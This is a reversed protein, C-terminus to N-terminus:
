RYVSKLTGWSMERNVVPGRKFFTEVKTLPGMHDPPCIVGTQLKLWTVGSEEWTHWGWSDGFDTGLFEICCPGIFFSGMGWQGEEAVIENRYRIFENDGVPGFFLEEGHGATAPNEVTGDAYTTSVWEWTGECPMDQAFLSGAWLGMALFIITAVKM